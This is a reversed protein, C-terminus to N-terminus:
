PASLVARAAKVAAFLKETYASRTLSVEMEEGAEEAAEVLDALAKRINTPLERQFTAEFDQGVLLAIGHVRDHIALGGYISHVHFGNYGHENAVLGYTRVNPLADAEIQKYMLPRGAFVAELLDALSMPVRKPELLVKVAGLDHHMPLDKAFVAREAGTWDIPFM